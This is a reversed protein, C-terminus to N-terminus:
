KKVESINHRMISACTQGVHVGFNIMVSKL